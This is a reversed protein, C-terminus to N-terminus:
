FIQTTHLHHATQFVTERGMELGGVGGGTQMERVEGKEIEQKGDREKLM